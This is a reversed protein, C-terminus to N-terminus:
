FMAKCVLNPCMINQESPDSSFKALILEEPIYMNCKFCYENTEFYNRVSVPIEFEPDQISRFKHKAEFDARHKMGTYYQSLLRCKLNFKSITKKYKRSLKNFDEEKKFYGNLYAAINLV